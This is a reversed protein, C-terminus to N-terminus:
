IVTCGVRARRYDAPLRYNWIAIVRCGRLVTAHGENRLFLGKHRVSFHALCIEGRKASYLLTAFTDAPPHGDLVFRECLFDM